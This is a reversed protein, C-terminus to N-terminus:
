VSAINKTVTKTGKHGCKSCRYLELVVQGKGPIHQECTGWMNGSADRIRNEVVMSIDEERLVKEGVYNFCDWKGCSPCRRTWAHYARVGVLVVGIICILVALIKYQFLEILLQGIVMVGFFLGLWYAIFKRYSKELFLLLISTGYLFFFFFPFNNLAIDFYGLGKILPSLIIELFAGLPYVMQAIILLSFPIVILVLQMIAEIKAAISRIGTHAKGYNICILFMSYIMTLLFCNGLIGGSSEQYMDVLSEDLTGRYGGLVIFRIYTGLIMIVSSVYGVAMVIYPAKESRVKKLLNFQGENEM